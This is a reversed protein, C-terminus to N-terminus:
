ATRILLAAQFSTSAVGTSSNQTAAGQNVFLEIYDTAGNLYILCSGSTAAITTTGTLSLYKAVAGNKYVMLQITAVTSALNVSGSVQYYGAVLPTYRNNTVADFASTTDYEKQNFTLKVPTASTLSTAVSQYASFAPTNASVLPATVPVGGDSTVYTKSGLLQSM